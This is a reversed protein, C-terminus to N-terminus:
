VAYLELYGCRTCRLGRITKQTARDVELNDGTIGWLKKKAPEGDFWMSQFISSGDGHDAAFGKAMPSSCKTCSYVTDSM